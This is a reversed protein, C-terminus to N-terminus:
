SQDITIEGNILGQIRKVTELPKPFLRRGRFDRDCKLIGTDVWNRITNPHVGTMQAIDKPTARGLM